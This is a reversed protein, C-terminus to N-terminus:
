VRPRSRCWPSRRSGPWEARGRARRKTRHKRLACPRAPRLISLRAHALVNIEGANRGGARRVDAVVDTGDPGADRRAMITRLLVVVEERVVVRQRLGLIRLLDLAGRQLDRSGPERQPEVGVVGNEVPLGVDGLDG